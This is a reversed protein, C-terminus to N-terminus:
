LLPIGKKVRRRFDSILLLYPLQRVVRPLMRNVVRILGFAREFKREDGATWDVRMQERFPQPLFGTTMLRNFPGFAKSLLPHLFKLDMLQSLFSRVADDIEMEKLGTEWYENFEALTAPWMDQRVQLTTGLPSLQQYLAEQESQSLTYGLKKNTDAIGWYICAAVWLQLQPDFANYKVKAGPESRVLRHAENVAKRYFLKEEATGLMAVALYTITTRGRKAPRKFLSGSDVKSEMVGYGVPLRALQMIVNAAGAMISIGDLIGPYRQEWEKPTLTEPWQHDREADVTQISEIATM